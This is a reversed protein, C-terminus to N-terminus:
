ATGQAQVQGSPTSVPSVPSTPQVQVQSLERQLVALEVPEMGLNGELAEMWDLRAQSSPASFLYQEKDTIQSPVM